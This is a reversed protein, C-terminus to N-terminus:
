KVTVKMVKSYSGYLKKGHVTKYARVKVYCNTKSKLSTLTYTTKTTSKRKAKEFKNNTAYLIEYGSVKETTKKITVVVKKKASSKLSISVKKPAATDNKKSDSSKVISFTDDIKQDNDTRYTNITLTKDTVYVISYTPIDEQWRAAIYTQKRPVLDYYKSGSSSGGTMYLIGKPNLVSDGKEVKEVYKDDMVSKLYSLYKQEGKDTTNNKINAPAEYRTEPNEGADMDKTLQTKFEDSSYNKAIESQTDQLMMKSRSYAHDHGTLVADIHNAEFYPTLQYRLNTIEPENSHEASGYIDQHLTVIRWKCDKNKAVAEEIFQKHEAVNSNQTNLMLFLANGYKFYYDGGTVGNDGLKSENPRNFHYTYNQNDADHNGVTTAVPLSKLIDPSLYGTYEIESKAADKNPAKKKTTQIQDGASVVFSAKNGTKQMAANLTSAWNFADNCVADSQANYFEESDSGKLENSSGIQPDGVFVFSFNKASKTTYAAPKTYGSGNDYSYYYTTNEKLGAATVKNTYYTGGKTDTENAVETQKAEYVKANKMNRGEGIILKPANGNESGESVKAVKAEVIQDTKSQTTKKPTYWAFNLETANKGPTLSVQTWDNKVRNWENKWSKYQNSLGMQEAMVSADTKGDPAASAFVSAANGAALTIALASIVIQKRWNGKM